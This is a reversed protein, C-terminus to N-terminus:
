TTYRKELEDFFKDCNRGKGVSIDQYSKMVMEWLQKNENMECQNVIQQALRM